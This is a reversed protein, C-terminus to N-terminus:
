KLVNVAAAGLGFGSIVQSWDLFSRVKSIKMFNTPVIVADGPEVRMSEFKSNNARAVTAGDARIVFMHSADAYKTPGGSLKLYDRIDSDPKYLFTSQNYVIGMVSVTAPTEPVVLRDGNELPIEPLADVGRSDPKLELVIRGTVPTNRLRELVARQSQLNEQAVGVQQPVITRGALTASNEELERETKDLYDNLRKEEQRKTSERTFEAAYLYAKDTLGGARAVLERLTEGPLVSYIGAMRVEGEVRVVRPQQATPTKFDALSFITVVDGPRLKLDSAEDHELVAKGLNFPVLRTGLTQGDLREIAAYEWNIDPAPPQFDNKKGFKRRKPGTDGLIATALSTDMSVKHVEQSGEQSGVQPAGQPAGQHADQQMGQNVEDTYDPSGATLRNHETWYGRTLLAQKEPILDSVRMGEHWPLRVPDAVNGKLSVTQTFRPVVNLLSIIDGDQLATDLGSGALRIEESVLTSRNDIRELVAHQGAAVPSLGGADDLIERVSCHEEIEYIAPNEISGSLAVRAGAPPIFIVDGPRLAADKTKDGRLLLDYMDFRTVLQGNRKLQINRMSGQASPGGSVFLANVLTSLASVTYTGPRRAHGMVFVQISRLQSM